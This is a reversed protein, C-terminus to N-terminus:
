IHGHFHGLNLTRFSCLLCNMPQFKTNGLTTSWILIDLPWAPREQVSCFRPARLQPLLPAVCRKPGKRAHGEGEGCGPLMCFDVGMFGEGEPAWAREADRGLVALDARLM